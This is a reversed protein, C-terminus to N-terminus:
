HSQCGSSGSFGVFPGQCSIPVRESLPIETGTGAARCGFGELLKTSTNRCVASHLLHKRACAAPQPKPRPSPQADTLVLCSSSNWQFGLLAEAPRAREVHSPPLRPFLEIKALIIQTKNFEPIFVHKIDKLFAMFYFLCSTSWMGESM